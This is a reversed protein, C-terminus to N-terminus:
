RRRGLCRFLGASAVGLVAMLWSSPEPLQVAADTTHFAGGNFRVFDKAEQSLWSQNPDSDIRLPVVVGLNWEITSNPLGPLSPPPNAVPDGQLNDPSEGTSSDTPPSIVVPDLEGVSIDVPPPNNVPLVTPVDTPPADDTPPDIPPPIDAPPEVPPAVPPNELYSAPSIGELSTMGGAASFVGAFDFLMGTRGVSGSFLLDGAVVLRAIPVQLYQSGAGSGASFTYSNADQVGDGMRNATWPAYVYSESKWYDGAEGVKGLINGEFRFAQAFFSLYSGDNGDLMFDYAFVGDGLDTVTSTLIPGAHATALSWSLALWLMARIPLRGM